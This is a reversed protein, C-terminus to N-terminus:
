AEPLSGPWYPALSIKGTWTGPALSWAPRIKWPCPQRFVAQFLKKRGSFLSGADRYGAVRSEM